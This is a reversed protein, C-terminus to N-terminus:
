PPTGLSVIPHVHRVWDYGDRAARHCASRAVLGGISHGVLSIDTVAVPWEDALHRVPVALDLGNRSIRRGTNYRLQVATCDLERELREGYTERGGLRWAFETEM